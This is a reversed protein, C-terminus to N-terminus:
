TTDPESAPSTPFLSIERRESRIESTEQWLAFLTRAGNGGRRSVGEQPMKRNSTFGHPFGGNRKAMALTSSGAQISFEDVLPVAKGSGLQPVTPKDFRTEAEIVRAVERTLRSCGAWALSM